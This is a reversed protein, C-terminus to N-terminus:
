AGKKKSLMKWAVFAAGGILILTTPDLSSQQAAMANRLDIQAQTLAGQQQQAQGYATIAGGAVDTIASGVDGYGSYHARSILTSRQYAM